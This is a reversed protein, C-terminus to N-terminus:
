APADKSLPRGAGRTQCDSDAYACPFMLAYRAVLPPGRPLPRTNPKEIAPAKYWHVDSELDHLAFDVVAQGLPGSPSAVMQACSLCERCSTQPDVPLGNADVLITKVAGDACIEISIYRGHGAIQAAAFPGYVALCAILLLRLGLRFVNIM